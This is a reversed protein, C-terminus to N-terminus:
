PAFLADELLFLWYGAGPVMDDDSGKWALKGGSDWRLWGPGESWDYLYGCPDYAYLVRSIEQISRLYWQIRLPMEDDSRGVAFETYGLMNWGKKLSYTPPPTMPDPEKTPFWLRMEQPSVWVWYAKGPVISTITGTWMGTVPNLLAYMWYGYAGGTYHYVKTVGVNTRFGFFGKLSPDVLDWPTSILNWGECLWVDYMERGWFLLSEQTWKEHKWCKDYWDCNYDQWKGADGMDVWWQTFDHAAVDVFWDRNPIMENTFTAKWTKGSPDQPSQTMLMWYGEAPGGPDCEAGDWDGPPVHGTPSCPVPPGVLDWGIPKCCDWDYDYPSGSGIFLYAESLPESSTATVIVTENYGPNEPSATVTIAPGIGDQATVTQPLELCQEAGCTWCYEKDCPNGALDEVVGYQVVTPTADTLLPTNLTLFVLGYENDSCYGCGSLWNGQYDHYEVAAPPINNVKFDSAEVTAPNLPESFVVMISTRQHTNQPGPKPGWRWTWGTIADILMPPSSEVEFSWGDQKWNWCCDAFKLDVRYIGDTLTSPPTWTLTTGDWDFDFYETDNLFFRLSDSRVQCKEDEIDVSILPQSLNTSPDPSMNSMVPPENDVDFTAFIDSPDDTPYKLEIDQCHPAYLDHRELGTPPDVSPDVNGTTVPYLIGKFYGSDKDPALTTEDVEILEVEIPTEGTLQAYVTVTDYEHWDYTVWVRNYPDICIGDNASGISSTADVGDAYISGFSQTTTQCPVTGLIYLLENIHNGTELLGTMGSLHVYTYNGAGPPVIDGTTVDCTCVTLKQPSPPQSDLSLDPGVTKCVMLGTGKDPCSDLEAYWKGGSYHWDVVDYTNGYLDRACDVCPTQGPRPQHPVEYNYDDPCTLDKPWTPSLFEENWGENNASIDDVEIQIPYGSLAAGLESKVCTTDIPELYWDRDNVVIDDVLAEGGCTFINQENDYGVAVALVKADAGVFTVMQDWTLGSQLPSGGAPGYVNWHGSTFDESWKIWTDTTGPPCPLVVAYYNPQGNHSTDIALGMTPGPDEFPTRYWYSLETDTLEGITCGWTVIVMASDGESLAKLYAAHNASVYDPVGGPGTVINDWVWRAMGDGCEDLIFDSGKATPGNVVNAGAPTAVSVALAPMFAFVLALAVIIRWAPDLKKLKKGM